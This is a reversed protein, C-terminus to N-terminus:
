LFFKKRNNLLRLLRGPGLAKLKLTKKNTSSLTSPLFHAKKTRTEEFSVEVVEFSVFVLDFFFFLLESVVGKTAFAFALGAATTAASVLALVTAVNWQSGVYVDGEWNETFLKAEGKLAKEEAGLYAERLAELEERVTSGPKLLHPHALAELQDETFSTPPARLLPIIEEDADSVARPPPPAVLASRRRRSSLFGRGSSM